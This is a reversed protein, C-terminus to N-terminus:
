RGGSMAKLEEYTIKEFDKPISFTGAPVKQETISTITVDSTQGDQFATYQIPVGGAKAYYEPIAIAPLVIDNTVWIDYSNGSKTDKATVKKCNFGSIQKTDTGPTFTLTPLKSMAEEIDAATLVGAKKISAVPVDVLIAMFQYKADRLIKISAPGAQFGTASSDSRFYEKMEMEQGRVNTKINVVGEAYNKQATANLSIASLSIGIAATFLKINM